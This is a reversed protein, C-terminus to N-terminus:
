SVTTPGALPTQHKDCDRGLVWATSQGDRTTVVILAPKGEYQAIDVTIRSSRDLVEQGIGAACATAGEKTAVSGLKTADAPTLGADVDARALSGADTSLSAATYNRDTSTVYVKDTIGSPGPSTSTVAQTPPAENSGMSQYAGIAIVGAVAAAAAGGVLRLVASRRAPPEDTRSRLATVNSPQDGRRGAEHKLAATVRAAVLDPMPGPDPQARLLDRMGTPDADAAEAREVDLRHMIRKSVAAPMPGPAPQARLLERIGHPDDDFSEPAPGADARAAEHEARLAALIGSAVHDPMPGPDPQAALLDRVASEDDRPEIPVAHLGGPRRAVTENALADRIRDSVDAPMPGPDPVSRLLERVGTPDDEFAADLGQPPKTSM